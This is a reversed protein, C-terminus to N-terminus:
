ELGYKSLIISQQDQYENSQFAQQINRIQVENLSRKSFAFYVDESNVVFDDIHIHAFNPNFHQQYYLNGKEELFGSIKNRALLELKTQNDVVTIFQNANKKLLQTFEEGYYAGRHVAVPLPLSLLDDLKEIPYINAKNMALVITETRQPGIFHYYPEREPTKSVSLVLDILGAKLSGIARGWPLEVFSFQCQAKDLLAKAFDVDLGHWRAIDGGPKYASFREYRVTLECASVSFASLVLLSLVLM